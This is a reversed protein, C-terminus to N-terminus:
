FYHQQMAIWGGTSEVELNQKTMDKFSLKKYRSQGPVSYSAGTFSGMHFMSTKDEQPSTRLFQTNLYGTWASTGTKRMHYAMDILYSGREFTFQKTVRLGDATKGELDVTIKNQDPALEYNLSTTEFPISVKVVKRDQLTVLNSEAVYRMTPNDQLLTFPKSNRQASDSYALLQANVIDGHKLDIAVNLVDTKVYVRQTLEEAPAADAVAESESDFGGEDTRQVTPLLRDSAAEPTVVMQAAAVPRAPPYDTQWDMWLFYGVLALAGYLIVRRVDM